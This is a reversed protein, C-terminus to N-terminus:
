VWLTHIKVMKSMKHAVHVSLLFESELTFYISANLIKSHKVKCGYYEKLTIEKHTIKQTLEMMHFWM